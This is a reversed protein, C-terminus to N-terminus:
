KQRKADRKEVQTREIPTKAKICLETFLGHEHLIDPSPKAQQRRMM